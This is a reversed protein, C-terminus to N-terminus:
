GGARDPTDDLIQIVADGVTMDDAFQGHEIFHSVQAIVFPNNMMFTHTAHVILHDTMGPLSTSAVSVKGDDAGDVLGSFLPNLSRDGAIIGVSFNAPPLGAVVGDSGTKLEAGAPGHLWHYLSVDDLADALESGQNPTGLMVVRNLNELDHDQFWARVLIGGMSHAVISMPQAACAEIAGPMVKDALDQIPLETSPYDVLVVDHGQAKLAQGMVLM